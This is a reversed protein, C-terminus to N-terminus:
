EKFDGAQFPNAIEFLERLSLRGSSTISPSSPPYCVKQTKPDLTESRIGSWGRNNKQIACRKKKEEM